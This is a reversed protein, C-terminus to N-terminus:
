FRYSLGADFSSEAQSPASDFPFAKRYQMEYKLWVRETIKNRLSASLTRYNERNSREDVYNFKFYLTDTLEYDLKSSIGYLTEFVSGGAQKQAWRIGPGVELSLNLRPSPEFRRGLGVRWAQSSRFYGFRNYRLRPSVFSYFPNDLLMRKWKINADYEDRNVEAAGGNAQVYERDIRFESSIESRTWRYDIDGDSALRRSTYTSKSLAFRLGIEASIKPVEDADAVPALTSTDTETPIDIVPAGEAAARNLSSLAFLACTLALSLPTHRSLM